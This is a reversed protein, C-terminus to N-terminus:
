RGGESDPLVTAVTRREFPINLVFRPEIQKLTIFGTRIATRLAPIATLQNKTTRLAENNVTVEALDKRQRSLREAGQKLQQKLFLTKVGFIGLGILVAIGLCIYIVPVAQAYRRQNAPM